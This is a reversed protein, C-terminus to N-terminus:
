TSGGCDFWLGSRGEPDGSYNVTVEEGPQIRRLASYSVLDRDHDHDYRANPKWSHNYLSGYGLAIACEDDTWEFCFGDLGLADIADATVLLVPCDEIVDGPEFRRAAFVGRGHVSSRDVFVGAISPQARLAM